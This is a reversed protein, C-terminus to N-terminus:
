RRAPQPEARGPVVGRRPGVAGARRQVGAPRGGSTGVIGGAAIRTPNTIGNM